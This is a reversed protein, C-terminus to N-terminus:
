EVAHDTIENILSLHIHLNVMRHTVNVSDIRIGNGSYFHAEAKKVIGSKLTANAARGNGSLLSYYYRRGKERFRLVLEGTTRDRLVDPMDDTFGAMLILRTDRSLIKVASKRNLADLIYHVKVPKGAHFEMDWIKLGVENLCIVRYGEEPLSKVVLLGSFHRKMLDIKTKLLLHDSDTRFWSIPEIKGAENGNPCGKFVSYSCSGTLLLLIISGSVLNKL